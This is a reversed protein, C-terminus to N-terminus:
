HSGLIRIAGAVVALALVAFVVFRVGLLMALWRGGTSPGPVAGDATRLAEVDAVAGTETICFLRHCTKCGVAVGPSQPSVVQPRHCHPCVLIHHTVDRRINASVFM